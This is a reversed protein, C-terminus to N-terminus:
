DCLEDWVKNKFETGQDSHLQAPCGFNLIWRDLLKSAVVEASKEPIPVGISYRSFGDQMTLAYKSGCPMMNLPGVLDMFLTQGPYGRGASKHVGDHNSVKRNKAM